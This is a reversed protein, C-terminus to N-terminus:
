SAFVGRFLRIAPIMALSLGFVTLLMLAAGMPWNRGDYFAFHALSGVLFVKGGGLLDPIVFEAFCPLFVIAAGGALGPRAMPIIVRWITSWRGGGLSQSAIIYGPDIRDLSSLFAITFFPLYATLLGLFVAFANYLLPLPEDRIRMKILFSNIMGANGLLLQWSYAVLLANLTLPTALLLRWMRQSRATSGHISLAFPVGILACLITAGTAMMTSRLLVILVPYTFLDAWGQLSWTGEIGGQFDRGSLSYSAILLLPSVLFFGVYTLWLALAFMGLASDAFRRRSGNM